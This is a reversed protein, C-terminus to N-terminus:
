AAPGFGFAIAVFDVGNQLADADSAVTAREANKRGADFPFNGGDFASIFHGTDVRRRDAQELSM